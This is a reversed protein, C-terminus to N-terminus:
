IGNLGGACGYDCITFEEEIVDFKTILSTIHDMTQEIITKQLSSNENYDDSMRITASM